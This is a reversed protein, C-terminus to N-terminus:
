FLTLRLDLGISWVNYSKASTLKPNADTCQSQSIGQATIKACGGASAVFAYEFSPGISFMPLVKYDFGVGIPVAVGHHDLSWDAPITGTAGNSYAVDVNRTFSQTDHMYSVGISVWPDIVPILPVYARVYPGISWASRSLNTTGDDIQSASSKRYGASLGFSIYKMTRYGIFAEGIFGGGYPSATGGWLKGPDGKVVVNSPPEFRVPSDNGASGYAPRLMIEFGKDGDDARANSAISILALSSISLSAFHARFNMVAATLVDYAM